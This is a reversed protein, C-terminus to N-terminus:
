RPAVPPNELPSKADSGRSNATLCEPRATARRREAFVSNPDLGQDAIARRQRVDWLVRHTNRRGVAPTWRLNENRLDFPNGNITEAIFGKPAMPVGEAEAEQSVTFISLLLRCLTYASSRGQRPDSSRPMVRPYTHARGDGDLSINPSYGLRLYEAWTDASVIVLGGKTTPVLAAKVGGMMQFTVTRKPESVPTCHTHHNNM